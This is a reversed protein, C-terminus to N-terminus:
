CIIKSITILNNLIIKRKVIQLFQRLSKIAFYRFRCYVKLVEKERKREFRSYFNQKLMIYIYINKM